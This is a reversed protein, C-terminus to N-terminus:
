IGRYRRASVDMFRAQGATFQFACCDPTDDMYNEVPDRGAIHAGSGDQPTCTDPYTPPCDSLKLHEKMAPTDDVGDFDKSCDDGIGYVHLLGLWHGVEHAATDGLGFPPYPDDSPPPSGAPDVRPLASIDLVIGDYEVPDNPLSAWGRITRNTSMVTFVHLVERRRDNRGRDDKRLAARCAKDEDSPENTYANPPDREFWDPKYHYFVENNALQFRFPTPSTPATPPQKQAQHDPCIDDGGAFARDLAKIQWRVWDQPVKGNEIDDASDAPTNDKHIVHFYVKIPPVSGPKRMEYGRHTGLFQVTM